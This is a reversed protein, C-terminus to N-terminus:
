QIYDVFHLLYYLRQLAPEGVNEERRKQTKGIEIWCYSLPEHVSLELM